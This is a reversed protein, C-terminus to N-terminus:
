YNYIMYSPTIHMPDMLMVAISPPTVKESCHHASLSVTHIYSSSSGVSSEATTHEMLDSPEVRCALDLTPLFFGLHIVPSSTPDRPVPKM